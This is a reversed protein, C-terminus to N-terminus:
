LKCVNTRLTWNQPLNLVWGCSPQSPSRSDSWAAPERRSQPPSSWRGRGTCRCCTWGCTWLWLPCRSWRSSLPSRHRIHDWLTTMTGDGTFYCRIIAKPNMDKTNKNGSICPSPHQHSSQSSSWLGGEARPCLLVLFTRKMRHELETKVDYVHQNFGAMSSNFM